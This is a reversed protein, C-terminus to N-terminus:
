PRILPLSIVPVEQKKKSSKKPLYPAVTSALQSSSEQVATKNDINETFVVNVKFNVTQNGKILSMAIQQTGLDALNSSLV